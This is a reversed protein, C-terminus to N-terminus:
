RGYRGGSDEEWGFLRERNLSGKGDGVIVRDAVLM